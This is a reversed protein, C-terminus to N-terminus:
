PSRISLTGAPSRTMTHRVSGLQLAILEDLQDRRDPIQRVAHEFWSSGGEDLEVYLGTSLRQQDDGGTGIDAFAEVAWRQVGKGEGCRERM